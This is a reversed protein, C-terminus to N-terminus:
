STIQHVSSIASDEESHTDTLLTLFLPSKCCKKRFKTGSLRSPTNSVPVLSFFRYKTGGASSGTVADGTAM